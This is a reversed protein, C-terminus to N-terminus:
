LSKCFKYKSHIFPGMKRGRVSHFGHINKDIKINKLVKEVDNLTLDPVAIDMLEKFSPIGSEIGMKFIMGSM